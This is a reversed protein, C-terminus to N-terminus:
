KILNKNKILSSVRLEMILYIGYATIDVLVMVQFFQILELERSAMMLSVVKLLMYGYQWYALLKTKRVVIFISSLSSAVFRVSFALILVRIFPVVEVWQPGLVFPVLRPAFMYMFISYGMSIVLFVGAFKLVYAKLSVGREYQKASTQLFVKRLSDGVFRGPLLVLRQVMAFYGLALAGYSAGILLLPINTAFSNAFAPLASHLPLDKYKRLIVFLRARFSVSFVSEGMTVTDIQAIKRQYILTTVGGAIRGLILGVAGFGMFGGATQSIGSVGAGLAMGMGARAFHENRINIMQYIRGCGALLILLVLIPYLNSDLSNPLLRGFVQPCFLLLCLVFFCFLLELALATFAVYSAVLNSRPLPIALEYRGNSVVGLVGVFAMISAVVGFDSPAYLRALLPSLAIPFFQALISGSSFRLIKGISRDAYKKWINILEKM